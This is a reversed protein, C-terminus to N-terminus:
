IILPKMGLEARVKNWWLISGKLSSGHKARKKPPANPASTGLSGGYADDGELGRKGNNQEITEKHNARLAAIEEEGLGSMYPGVSINHEVMKRKPIRPLAIDCAYTDTLLTEVFEDMCLISWTGNIMRQRIKRYDKLIPELHRYIDVAKWAVRVYLAALAKLYKHEESRLLELVIDQEPQIQLLKLLLCLFPCPKRSGGFTGGVHDLAAAKDIVTAVTLGFCEEKWYRTNYVRLRLIKDM